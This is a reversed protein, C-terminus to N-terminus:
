GLKKQSTSSIQSVQMTPVRKHRLRLFCLAASCCSSQPQGFCCRKCSRERQRRALVRSANSCEQDSSEPLRSRLKGSHFSSIMLFIVQLPALRKPPHRQSNQRM